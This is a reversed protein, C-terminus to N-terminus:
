VRFTAVPLRWDTILATVFTAAIPMLRFGAFRWAYRTGRSPRIQRSM